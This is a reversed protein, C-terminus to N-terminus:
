ARYRFNSDHMRFSPARADKDSLLAEEVKWDIGLDQDDYRIGGESERHYHDDVKYQVETDDRLTVFGHAFGKPIYLMRRNSENLEVGTWRAFSPSGQRLDVAIDFVAGRTCRVLKAQAHPERQFHLGRVTGKKASFSQNDQVFAAKIGIAEMKKISYTEMFWGRQDSFVEPEVIIVGPLKTLVARM